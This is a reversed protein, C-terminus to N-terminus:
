APGEYMIEDMLQQSFEPIRAKYAMPRRFLNCLIPVSRM